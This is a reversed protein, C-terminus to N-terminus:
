YDKNFDLIRALTNKIDFSNLYELEVIGKFIRRTKNLDIVDGEFIYDKKSIRLSFNKFKQYESYSQFKVSFTDTDVKNFVINWEKGFSLLIDEELQTNKKTFLNLDNPNSKFDQTWNWNISIHDIFIERYFIEKNRTINDKLIMILYLIPADMLKEKITKIINDIVKLIEKCHYDCCSSFLKLIKGSLDFYNELPYDSLHMQLTRFLDMHEKNDKLDLPTYLGGEKYINSEYNFKDECKKYLVEQFYLNKLFEDTTYGINMHYNHNFNDLNLDRKLINEAIQLDESAQKLIIKLLGEELEIPCEDLLRDYTNKISEEIEGFILRLELIVENIKPREYPTQKLMKNILNDLSSLLPSISSINKFYSGAPNQKTFVENIIAGLAYIDVASTIDNAKGKIKQEPALYNRNALLDSDKTLMHNEFHAIGFDALVLKNEEILINEPKIDRHIINKDHIFKIAQCLKEIYTFAKDISTANEDIVKRLTKSYYPMIYFVSNDFEGDELVKVINTNETKKCFAIENQFRQKKQESLQGHTNLFKVAYKKNSSLALWVVGAGGSGLQEILKYSKGSIKIQKNKFKPM